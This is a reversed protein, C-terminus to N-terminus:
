LYIEQSRVIRTFCALLIMQLNKRFSLFFSTKFKSAFLNPEAVSIIFVTFESCQCCVYGLGEAPAM